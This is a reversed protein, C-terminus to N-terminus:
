LKDRERGANTKNQKHLLKMEQNRATRNFATGGKKIHQQM